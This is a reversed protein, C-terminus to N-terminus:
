PEGQEEIRRKNDYDVARLAIVWPGVYWAIYVEGPKGHWVLGRLDDCPWPERRRLILYAVRKGDRVL